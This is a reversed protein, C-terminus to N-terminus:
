REWQLKEEGNTPFWTILCHVSGAWKGSDLQCVFTQALGIQLRGWYRMCTFGQMMLISQDGLLSENMLCFRVPTCAHDTGTNTSRMLTQAASSTSPVKQLEKPCKARCHINQQWDLIARCLASTIASLTPFSRTSLVYSPEATQQVWKGRWLRRPFRFEVVGVKAGLPGKVPM